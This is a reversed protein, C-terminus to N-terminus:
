KLTKVWEDVDSKVKERGTGYREQLVGELKERNGRIIEVDSDTLKGWRARIEGSIQKWNGAVQDWNM